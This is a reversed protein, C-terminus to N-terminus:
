EEANLAEELIVKAEKKVSSPCLGFDFLVNFVVLSLLETSDGSGGVINPIVSVLKKADEADFGLLPADGGEKWKLTGAYLAAHNTLAEVANQSLGLDARGKATLVFNNWRGRIVPAIKYAGGGKVVALLCSELTTEAEELKILHEIRRFFASVETVPISPCISNVIARVLQLEIANEPYFISNKSVVGERGALSYNAPLGLSLCAKAVGRQEDAGKDYSTKLTDLDCFMTARSCPFLTFGYSVQAFDPCDADPDIVCLGMALSNTANPSVLLVEAGESNKVFSLVM